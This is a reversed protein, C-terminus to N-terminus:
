FDFPQKEQQIKLHRVLVVAQHRSWVRKPEM